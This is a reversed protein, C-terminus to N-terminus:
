KSVVVSLTSSSTVGAANVFEVRYTHTGKSRGTVALTASQAAPTAAVLAGESVLAGDEYFRYSTANTGWWLNAAVTYAGDKNWNDHSLVPTGPNAKTVKVTVTQLPTTGKTNVLEGSYVYTGNPKGTVPVVASQPSVGGYSLPITAILVGNERVRLLSGNEGWWLNM